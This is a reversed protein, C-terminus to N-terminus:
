LLSIDPQVEYVVGGEEAGLHLGVGHQHVDERTVPIEPLLELQESQLPEKGPVQPQPILVQHLARLSLHSPQVSKHVSLDALLHRLEQRLM